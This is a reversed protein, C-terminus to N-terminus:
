SGGSLHNFMQCLIRKPTEGYKLCPLLRAYYNLVTVMSDSAVQWLTHKPLHRQRESGYKEKRYVLLMIAGEDYLANQLNLSSM